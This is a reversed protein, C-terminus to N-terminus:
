CHVVANIFPIDNRVGRATGACVIIRVAGTTRIESTYPLSITPGEVAAPGGGASGSVISYITPMAVTFTIDFTGTTFRTVSSVNRSNYITIGGAGDHYFAVWARAAYLPTNGSPPPFFANSSGM